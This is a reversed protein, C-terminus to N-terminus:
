NSLDNVTQPVLNLHPFHAMCIIKLSILTSQQSLLGYIYDSLWTWQTGLTHGATFSCPVHYITQVLSYGGQQIRNCWFWLASSHHLGSGLGITNMQKCITWRITTLSPIILSLFLSVSTPSATWGLKTVDISHGHAAMIKALRLVLYVIDQQFLICSLHSCPHPWLYVKINGLWKSEEALSNFFDIHQSVTDVVCLVWHEPVQPCHM